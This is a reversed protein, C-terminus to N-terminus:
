EIYESYFFPFGDYPEPIGKYEAGNFLLSQDKIASNYMAIANVKSREVFTSDSSAVQGLLSSGSFVMSFTFFFTIKNKIWM